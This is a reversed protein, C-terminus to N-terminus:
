SRGGKSFMRPPGCYFGPGALEESLAWYEADTVAELMGTILESERQELWQKYNM